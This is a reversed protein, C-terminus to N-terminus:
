ALNNPLNSSLDKQLMKFVTVTHHVMAVVMAEEMIASVEKVSVERDLVEKVLVERVLVEKVLVEVSDVKIASVEVSDVKIVSVVAM